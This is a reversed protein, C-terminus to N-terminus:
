SYLFTREACSAVATPAFVTYEMMTSNIDALVASDAVFADRVDAAGAIVMVDPIPLDPVLVGPLAAPDITEDPVIIHVVGNSCWVNTVNVRAQRDNPFAGDADVSVRLNDGSLAAM